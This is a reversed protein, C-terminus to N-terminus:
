NIGLLALGEPTTTLLWLFVVAWYLVLTIVLKRLRAPTM